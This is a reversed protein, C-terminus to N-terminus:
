KGIVVKAHRIIVDNMYYGKEITDVIKGKLDDSPAPIETIADHLDPDFDAGNTEMEKLGKNGLTNKIKSHILNFGELDVPKENERAEAAAKSARDFDDLVSLMDIVVDKGATKFLEIREKATRKKYNDFEAFLRLNKDKQETLENELSELKEKAKEKKNGTLKAFIGASKEKKEEKLDNVEEEEIFNDKTEIDIEKEKTLPENKTENDLIADAENAEKKHDINFNIEVKNKDSKEIDIDIHKNDAM